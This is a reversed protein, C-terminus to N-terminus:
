NPAISYNSQKNSPRDYPSILNTSPYQKPQAPTNNSFSPTLSYDPQALCSAHYKSITTTNESINKPITPLGQSSKLATEDSYVLSLTNIDSLELNPVAKQHCEFDSAKKYVHPELLASIEKKNFDSTDQFPLSIDSTSTLFSKDKGSMDIFSSPDQSEQSESEVSFNHDNTFLEPSLVEHSHRVDRTFLDSSSTDPIDISSKHNESITGLSYNYNPSILTSTLDFKNEITTYSNCLEREEGKVNPNYQLYYSLWRCSWDILIDPNLNYLKITGDEGAAALLQGDRSFDIDHTFSNEITALLSGKLDWLKIKGEDTSALTQGDSSFSFGEDSEVTTLLSGNLDWLYLKGARGYNGYNNSSITNLTCPVM